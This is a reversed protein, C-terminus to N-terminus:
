GMFESLLGIIGITHFNLGVLSVDFCSNLRTSEVGPYVASCDVQRFRIITLQWPKAHNAEVKKPNLDAPVIGSISFTFGPNRFTYLPNQM